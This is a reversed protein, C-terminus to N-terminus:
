RSKEVVEGSRTSIRVKSGDSQFQSRVRTAKHTKPDVLAVKCLPIPVEREVIGGQMNQKRGPKTHRKVLRIREVLATGKDPFVTLV